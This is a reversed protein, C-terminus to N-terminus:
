VFEMHLEGSFMENRSKVGFYFKLADHLRAQLEILQRTDKVRAVADLRQELKGMLKTKIEYYTYLVDRYASALQKNLKLAKDISHQFWATSFGGISSLCLVKVETNSLYRTREEFLQKNLTKTHNQRQITEQLVKVVEQEGAEVLGYHHIVDALEM